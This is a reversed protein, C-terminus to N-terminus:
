TPEAAPVAGLEIVTGRTTDVDWVAEKALEEAENPGQTAHGLMGLPSLLLNRLSLAFSFLRTCRAAGRMFELTPEAPASDSAHDPPPDSAEYAFLSVSLLFIILDVKNATTALFGRFGDVWVAVFIEVCFLSVMFFDGVFLTLAVNHTFHLEIALHMVQMAIMLLQLLVQLGFLVVFHLLLFELVRRLAADHGDNNNRNSEQLLASDDPAEEGAAGQQSQMDGSALHEEDRDVAKQHVNTERSPKDPPTSVVMEKNCTTESQGDVEAKSEPNMNSVLEDTESHVCDPHHVPHYAHLPHEEEAISHQSM